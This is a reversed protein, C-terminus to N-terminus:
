RRSRKEALTLKKVEAPSLCSRFRAYLEAAKSYDGQRFADDAQPRLQSALSDLWYEEVWVKRKGELTSFFESDGQLAILCYREVFTGLEDLGAIVSETTSAIPDRYAKAATPDVARIIDAMAYRTGLYSVGAGIEYSRRGHYVDVEVSGKRYRILTPSSEVELFGLEILFSFRERAANEFNLNARDRESM